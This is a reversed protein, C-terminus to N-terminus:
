PLAAHGTDDIRMMVDPTLGVKGPQEPRHLRADEAGILRDTAVIRDAFVEVVEGAIADDLRNIHLGVPGLLAELVFRGPDLAGGLFGAPRVRDDGMRIKARIVHPRLEVPEAAVSQHPARPHLQVPVLLLEITERGAGIQARVRRDAAVDGPQGVIAPAEIKLHKGGLHGVCGAKRFGTRLDGEHQLM